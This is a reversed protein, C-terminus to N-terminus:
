EYPGSNYSDAETFLHSPENKDLTGMGHHAALPDSTKYLLNIITCSSCHLAFFSIIGLTVSILVIEWRLMSGKSTLNLALMIGNDFQETAMTDKLLIYSADAVNSENEDLNLDRLTLSIPARIRKNDACLTEVTAILSCGTPKIYPINAIDVTVSRTQSSLIVTSISFYDIDISELISIQTELMIDGSPSLGRVDIEDSGVNTFKLTFSELVDYENSQPRSRLIYELVRPDEWLDIEYWAQRRGSFRMTRPTDLAAESLNCQYIDYHITHHTVGHCNVEYYLPTDISISGMEVPLTSTIYSFTHDSPLLHRHQAFAFNTQHASSLSGGIIGGIMLGLLVPGVFFAILTQVKILTPNCNM